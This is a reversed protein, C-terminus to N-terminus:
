SRVPTDPPAALGAQILSLLEDLAFPKPLIACRHERLRGRNAELTEVDASCVIVPTDCLAPDLRLLELLNWGVDHHELRIDLVVLDPSGEQLERFARDGRVHTSPRYGRATLLHGLVYLLDPDDNVIAVAPGHGTGM